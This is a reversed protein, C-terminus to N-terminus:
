ASGSRRQPRSAPKLWYITSRALALSDPQVGAGSDWSPTRQMASTLVTCRTARRARDSGPSRDVRRCCWTASRRRRHAAPPPPSDCNAATSLNIAVVQDPFGKFEPNYRESDDFHGLVYAVYPGALVPLGTTDGSGGPATDSVSLLFRRNRSYLCAYESLTGRRRDVKHLPTSGHHGDGDEVGVALM